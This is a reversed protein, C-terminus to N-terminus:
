APRSTVRDKAAHSQANGGGATVSFLRHSVSSEHHAGFCLNANERCVLPLRPQQGSPLVGRDLALRSAEVRRHQLAHGRRVRPGIKRAPHGNLMLRGLRESVVQLTAKLGFLHQRLEFLKSAPVNPSDRVSFGPFVSPRMYEILSNGRLRDSESPPFLHFTRDIGPKWVPVRQNM